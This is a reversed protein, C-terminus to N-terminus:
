KKNDLWFSHSCDYHHGDWTHIVIRNLNKKVKKNLFMLVGETTYLGQHTTIYVPDKRTNMRWYGYTLLKGEKHFDIQLDYFRSGSDNTLEIGKINQHWILDEINNIIKQEMYCLYM